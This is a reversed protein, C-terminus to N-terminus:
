PVDYVEQWPPEQPCREHLQQHHDANRTNVEDYPHWNDRTHYNGVFTEWTPPDDLSQGERRLCPVLSDVYYDYRIQLQEITPPLYYRPHVPYQADCRYIAEALASGQDAPVDQPFIGGDSGVSAIFGQEALCSVMISPADAAEVFRVFEVDPLDRDVMRAFMSESSALYIEYLEMWDLDEPVGSRVWERYLDEWENEPPSEEWAPDPPVASLVESETGDGSHATCGVLVALALLASPVGIARL